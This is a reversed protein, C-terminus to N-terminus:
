RDFYGHSLKNLFAAIEEGALSLREKNMCFDVLRLFGFEPRALCEALM